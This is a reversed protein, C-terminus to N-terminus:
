QRGGRRQRGRKGVQAQAVAGPAHAPQRRQEEVAPVSSGGRGGRHVAAPPPPPSCPSAPCSHAHRGCWTATTLSWVREWRNSDSRARQWRCSPRAQARGAMLHAACRMVTPVGWRAKRWGCSARPRAPRWIRKVCTFVLCGKLAVCHQIGVQSEEVSLKNQIQNAELSSEVQPAKTLLEQPLSCPLFADSFPLPTQM